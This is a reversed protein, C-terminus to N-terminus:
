DSAKNAPRYHLAVVGSSFTRTDLLNLTNVTNNRFYKRPESMSEGVYAHAAFHVVADIHHRALVSRLFAVDGLDGNEFPGWQVAWAHGYSLNDLVVPTHGSAALCKATHSGIYGAGGTVLVNM